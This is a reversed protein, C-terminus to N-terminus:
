SIPRWSIQGAPGDSVLRGFPEAFHAPALLRDSDVLEAILGRRARGATEPDDDPGGALEPQRLQAPHNIADGSLLLSAGGDSVLVTHGHARLLTARVYLRWGGDAAFVAPYRARSPEWVPDSPGHWPDLIDPDDLDEVGDLLSVVEIGGIRVATLM